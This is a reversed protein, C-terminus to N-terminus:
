GDSLDLLFNKGGAMTNANEGGCGAVGVVSVNVAPVGVARNEKEVITDLNWENIIGIIRGMRIMNAKGQGSFDLACNFQKFGRKNVDGARVDCTEMQNLIGAVLFKGQHSGVMGIDRFVHLVIRSNAPHLKSKTREKSVLVVEQLVQVHWSGINSLM